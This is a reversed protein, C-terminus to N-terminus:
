RKNMKVSKFQFYVKTICNIRIIIKRGELKEWNRWRVGVVGCWIKNKHRENPFFNKVFYTYYFLSLFIFVAFLLLNFCVSIPALSYTYFICLSVSVCMKAYMSIYFLSFLFDYYTLLPCSLYFFFRWVFMIVYFRLFYWIGSLTSQTELRSSPM